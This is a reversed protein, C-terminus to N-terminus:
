AAHPAAATDVVPLAIETGAIHNFYNTFTDVGIRAIIEVIEGYDLLADVAQQLMRKENRAIIEPASLDILRGLRDNRNIVLRYRGNLDVLSYGDRDFNGANKNRMRTGTVISQTDRIAM